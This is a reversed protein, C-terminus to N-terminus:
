EGLGDDFRELARFLVHDNLLEHGLALALVHTGEDDAVPHYRRHAPARDARLEAAIDVAAARGLRDFQGLFVLLRRHPGRLDHSEMDGPHIHQFARIARLDHLDVGRRTEFADLLRRPDVDGALDDLLDLRTHDELIEIEALPETQGSTVDNGFQVDPRIGFEHPFGHAVGSQALAVDHHQADLTAADDNWIRLVLTFDQGAIDEEAVAHLGREATEYRREIGSLLFHLHLLGFGRFRCRRFRFVIGSRM